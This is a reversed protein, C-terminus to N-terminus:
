ILYKKIIKANTLWIMKKIRSASTTRLGNAVNNNCNIM